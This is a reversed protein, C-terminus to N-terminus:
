RSCCWRRRTSSAFGASARRTPSSRSSACCRAAPMTTASRRRGRARAQRAALLQRAGQRRRLRALARPRPRDGRGDAPETFRYLKRAMVLLREREAHSDAPVSALNVFIRPLYFLGAFWSSVFVIHFAKVWLVSSGMSRNDARLTRPRSDRRRAFAGARVGRAPRPPQAAIGPAALQHALRAEAGLSKIRGTNRSSPWPLLSATADIGPRRAACARDGAIRHGLLAEDSPMGTIARNGTISGESFVSSPRSASLGFPRTGVASRSSFFRKGSSPRIVSTASSGNVVCPWSPRSSSM